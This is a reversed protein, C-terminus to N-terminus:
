IYVKNNSPLSFSVSKDKIERWVEGAKKALETVSLTPNEEKLKERNENM